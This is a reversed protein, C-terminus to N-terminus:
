PPNRYVRERVQSVPLTSDSSPLMYNPLRWYQYGEVNHVVIDVAQAVTYSYAPDVEEIKDEIGFLETQTGAEYIRVESHEAIGTLTLTAPNAVFTTSAGSGNRVTPTSGVVYITLAKGSNNYVAANTTGNAGYGTFSLNQFTVENPTNPGLELAHGSGGSIFSVNDLKGSTNVAVDWLLATTSTGGTISSGNLTAGKADILAGNSFSCGLMEVKSTLIVQEYGNISQGSMTCTGATGIVEIRPRTDDSGFLAGRGNFLGGEIAINSGANQIDLKVGCFGTTVRNNPFVLAEGVSTFQTANGSSGITLTGNIFLIGDRSTVVGWRNAETAEDAAIFDSFKGAPDGGGGSLGTLGTGSAITDIADAFTNAGQTNATYHARFSWYTVSTLNPTGVTGNRWQAVNPNVAVIQFGGVAPYSSASFLDFRYYNATTSGIRISIGNGQLAGPRGSAMKILAAQGTLNQAASTYQFGADSTKVQAAISGSGQYYNDGNLSPTVGNNAWGTTDDANNIRTGDFSVAFVAM